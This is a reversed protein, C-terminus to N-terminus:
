FETIMLEACAVTTDLSENIIDLSNKMGEGIEKQLAIEEEIKHSIDNAIFSARTIHVFLDQIENMITGMKVCEEDAKDLCNKNYHEQLMAILHKGEKSMNLIHDSINMSDFAHKETNLQSENWIEMRNSLDRMSEQANALLLLRENLINKM